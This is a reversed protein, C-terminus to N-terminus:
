ELGSLIEDVKEITLNEYYKDNIQMAPATGCSGLCEVTLLTFKGDPTTQGVEIGLKEKLHELIEEAGLVSCTVNTCLQILYKGVPRRHLMTYFSAVAGVEVPPLNMVEAVEEMVEPSLWGNEKQAIELAPLLASKPDPYRKQARKIEEIAKESLM